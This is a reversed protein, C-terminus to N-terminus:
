TSWPADGRPASEVRWESSLSKPQIRRLFEKRWTRIFEGVNKWGEPANNLRQAEKWRQITESTEESDNHFEPSSAMVRAMVLQGHERYSPSKYIPQADLAAALPTSLGEPSASQLNAAEANGTISKVRKRREDDVDELKPSTEEPLKRKPPLSCEATQESQESRFIEWWRLISQELVQLREAPIVHHKKAKVNGGSAHSLNLPKSHMTQISNVEQVTTRHEGTSAGKNAFSHELWRRNWEAIIAGAARKAVGAEYDKIWGVGELPVSFIDAIRKRVVGAERDWNANCEPCAVLVDYSAHSKLKMPLWKRYQEPVVHLMTAGVDETSEGCVVCNNKREELHYPDDVHGQGGPTFNLHISTPSESRALGRSLYWRARKQSCRFILASHPPAYVSINDYVQSNSKRFQKPIKKRNQHPSTPKSDLNIETEDETDSDLSIHEM